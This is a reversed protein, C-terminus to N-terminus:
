IWQKTFPWSKEPHIYGFLLQEAVKLRFSLFDSKSWGRKQRDGPFAIGDLIYANLLSCEILYLFCQKWWKWSRGIKYYGVLQDGRDVGRMFQQYDPLLSPCPVDVRLGDQNCHQIACPTSTEARHTTPLFFVYKRDFWTVAFLLGNSLYDFYGRDEKKKKV